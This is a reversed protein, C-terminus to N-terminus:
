PTRASRREANFAAGLFVVVVSLYMWVMLGIAAALGGYVLHYPMQRMYLGFGRNVVWWLVTALLAGPLGERWTAPAPCGVRYIVALVTTGLGIGVVVYAVEWIFRLMAPLGFQEVLWERFFNGFVALGLAILWPGVAVPLLLLARWQRAWFSRRVQEEHVLAIGQLLGTMVQTGVLITGGLGLALLTTTDGAANRLFDTVMVRSGPPVLLRLRVLLEEVLPALYGTASFIGLVLLLGPFFALFLNFAVAQAQTICRPFVRLLSRRFQRWLVRM